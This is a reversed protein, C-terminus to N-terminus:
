KRLLPMTLKDTITKIFGLFVGGVKQM